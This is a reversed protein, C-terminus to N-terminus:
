AYRYAVDLLAYAAFVLILYALDIAYRGLRLPPVVRGLARLPPDTVSYALELVAALVGSPRFNRAFVMVWNIILRLFMLGIFIWLVYIAVQAAIM